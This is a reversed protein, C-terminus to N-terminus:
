KGNLLGKVSENIFQEAAADIEAMRELQKTIDKSHMEFSHWQLHELLFRPDYLFIHLTELKDNVLFYNYYEALYEQPPTETMIAMIHRASSLCKVEVAQTLDETYADRSEIHNEDDSQWVNGRILKLGLKQEATAIAEAELEKGRERSSELGDDDGTGEALREAIKAYMTLLPKTTDYLEDAKRSKAYLKGLSTGTRKGERFSLWESSGQEVELVRV